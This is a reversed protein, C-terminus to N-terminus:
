KLYEDYNKEPKIFLADFMKHLFTKKTAADDKFFLRHAVYVMFSPRDDTKKQDVKAFEDGFGDAIRFHKPAWTNEVNVIKNLFNYESRFLM